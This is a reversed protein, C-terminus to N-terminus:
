CIEEAPSDAPITPTHTAKYRPSASVSRPVPEERFSHGKFHTFTNKSDDNLYPFSRSVQALTILFTKIKANLTRDIATERETWTIMRGSDVNELKYELKM